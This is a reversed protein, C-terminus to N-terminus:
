FMFIDLLESWLIVPADKQFLAHRDIRLSTGGGGGGGGGGKESEKIKVIKEFRKTMM